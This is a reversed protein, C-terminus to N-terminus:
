RRRQRGVTRADDDDEEGEEEDDEASVEEEGEEGANVSLEGDDSGPDLGVAGPM